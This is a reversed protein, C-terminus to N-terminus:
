KDNFGKKCYKQLQRIRVLTNQRKKANRQMVESKSLFMFLFSDNNVWPDKPDHRTNHDDTTSM